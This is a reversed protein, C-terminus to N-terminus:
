RSRAAARRLATAERIMADLRVIREACTLADSRARRAERGARLAAADAEHAIDTGPEM